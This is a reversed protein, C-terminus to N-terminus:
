IASSCVSRCRSAAAHAPKSVPPLLAARVTGLPAGPDFRFEFTHLVASARLLWHSPSHLGFIPPDPLPRKSKDSESHRGCPRSLLLEKCVPLARFSRRVQLHTLRRCPGTTVSWLGM